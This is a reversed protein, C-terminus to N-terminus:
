DDPFIVVLLAKGYRDIDGGVTRTQGAFPACQTVGNRPFTLTLYDISPGGIAIEESVEGNIPYNQSWAPESLLACLAVVPIAKTLARM